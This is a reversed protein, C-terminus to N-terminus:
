QGERIHWHPGPLVCLYPEGHRAAKAKSPWARTRWCLDILNLLTDRNM